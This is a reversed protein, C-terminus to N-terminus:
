SFDAISKPNKADPFPKGRFEVMNETHTAPLGPYGILRWFVKGHNGGYIPDAFCAQLFLPYVLENFWAALPLDPDTARGSAIEDLLASADAPRLEAFSKARRARCLKDVAVIGAKYFQEPTLPLQYGHQPKGAKWPGRMYLRAGQGFGGALQRDIFVPLGCDVGSPTLGDAPCMVNVLAEVFAADDLSLSEYGRAPESVKAPSIPSRQDQAHASPAETLMAAGGIALPAAGVAAAAGRLFRRRGSDAPTTVDDDRTNRPSRAPASQEADRPTAHNADIIAKKGFRFHHLAM